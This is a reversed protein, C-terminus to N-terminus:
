YEFRLLVRKKGASEPSRHAIGQHGPAFNVGKLLTVDIPQLEYFRDLDVIEIPLHLHKEHSTSVNANDTFQTAEGVYTVILRLAYYDIHFRPCMTDNLIDFSFKFRESFGSFYDALSMMDSILEARLGPEIFTLENEFQKQIESRTDGDCCYDFVGEIKMSDPWDVLALKQELDSLLPRRNFTAINKQAKEINVLNELIDTQYFHDPMRNPIIQKIANLIQM